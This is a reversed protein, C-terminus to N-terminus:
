VAFTTWLLTRIRRSRSGVFGQLQRRSLTSRLYDREERSSHQDRAAASPWREAALQIRVIMILRITILCIIKKDAITAM